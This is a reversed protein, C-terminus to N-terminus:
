PLFILLHQLPVQTVPRVFFLFPISIFVFVCFKAYYSSLRVIFLSLYFMTFIIKFYHFDVCEQFLELWYFHILILSQVFFQSRLFIKNHV